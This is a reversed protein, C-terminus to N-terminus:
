FLNSIASEIIDKKCKALSVEIPEELEYAATGIRLTKKGSLVLTCISKTQSDDVIISFHGKFDRYSIRDIQNAKFKGSTALITRIVSFATLEEQTTVIGLKSNRSESERLRDVAGQLSFSNFLDKLKTEVKEDFRKGGMRRYISKLVDNSPTILEETLANEFQEIFYYEEAIARFDNLNFNNRHFAALRDLTWQDISEINFSLFPTTQGKLYFQYDLGNTLIGMKSENVWNLYETLQRLHNDNLAANSRKCEILIIPLRAKGDVIVTDVKLKKSNVEVTYEHRVDDNEVKYGLIALFPDVLSVRSATEGTSAHEKQKTHDWNNLKKKIEKAALTYNPNTM